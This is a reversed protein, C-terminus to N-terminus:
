RQPTSRRQGLVMLGPDLELLMIYELHEYEPKDVIETGDYVNSEEFLTSLSADAPVVLDHM